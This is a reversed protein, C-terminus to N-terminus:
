ISTSRKVVEYAQDYKVIDFKNMDSKRVFMVEHNGQRLSNLDNAVVLDCNNKLISDKAAEYLETYSAGVLLKFGVLKVTPYKTKINGIIKEAPELEIKLEDKSKIKTKAPNKVIYDSVAAALIVIDPKEKEILDYLMYSYDDYNRYRKEVYKLKNLSLDEQVNRVFEYYQRYEEEFDEREFFEPNSVLYNFDFPSRGNQSVLYIVDNDDLIAEKAIKAGFTGRSMNTIDRVPDLPVKTGGSTILIKTM